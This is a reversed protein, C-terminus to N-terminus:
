DSPQKALFPWYHEVAADVAARLRKRHKTRKDVVVNHGSITAMSADVMPPSPDLPVIVLGSLRLHRILCAASITAGSQILMWDLAALNSAGAFGRPKGGSTSGRAGQWIEHVLQRMSGPNRVGAQRLARYISFGFEHVILRDDRPLRDVDNLNDDRQCVGFKAM